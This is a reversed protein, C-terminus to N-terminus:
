KDSVAVLSDHNVAFLQERHVQKLEDSLGYLFHDLGAPMLFALERVSRSRPCGTSVRGAFTLSNRPGKGCLREGRWPRFGRQPPTGRQCRGGRM